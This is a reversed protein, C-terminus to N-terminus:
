KEPLSPALVRDIFQKREADLRASTEQDPQWNDIAEIMEIGAEALLQELIIQRDKIVWLEELLNLMIEFTVEQRPDSQSM